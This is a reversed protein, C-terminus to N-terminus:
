SPVIALEGTCQRAVLAYETVVAKVLNTHTEYISWRDKIDIFLWYATQNLNLAAVCKIALAKVYSISQVKYSELTCHPDHFSSEVNWSETLMSRRYMVPTHFLTSWLGNSNKSLSNCVSGMEVICQHQLEWNQKYYLFDVASPSARIPLNIIMLHLPFLKKKIFCHICHCFAENISQM